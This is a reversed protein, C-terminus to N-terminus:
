PHHSELNILVVNSV